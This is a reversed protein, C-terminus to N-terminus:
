TAKSGWTAKSACTLTSRLRRFAFLGVVGAVLLLGTRPEPVASFSVTVTSSSTTETQGLGLSDLAILNFVQVSSSGATLAKFTVDLLDGNGNVGSVAGNLVDANATISGGTNDISGPVFITQGGAALFAGETVSTAELVTPDFGLDFQYGYLDSAGSIEVSLTFSQGVAETPAAPDVSITGALLSASAALLWFVFTVTRTKM